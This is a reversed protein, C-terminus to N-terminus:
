NSDPDQFHNWMIDTYEKKRKGYKIILIIHNPFEQYTDAYEVEIGREKLEMLM